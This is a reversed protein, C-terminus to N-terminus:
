ERRKAMLNFQLRLEGHPTPVAVAPGTSAVLYTRGTKSPPAKEIAAKSVDITIVLKDGDLKIDYGAM